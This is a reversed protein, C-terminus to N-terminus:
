CYNAVAYFLLVGIAVTTTRTMLGNTDGQRQRPTLGDNAALLTAGGEARHLCRLNRSLVKYSEARKPSRSRQGRLTCSSGAGTREFSSAPGAASSTLREM